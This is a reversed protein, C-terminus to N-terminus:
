ITYTSEIPWTQVNISDCFQDLTNSFEERPIVRAGLSALHESYVQCDILAFDYTKLLDVLHAFCIKSADTRRSFMSEGFFIQGMAIGYLGGVLEGQHWYEVSHAHGSEHLSQYNKIIAQTIWTGPSNLRPEACSKVVESFTQNFTVKYDHKRLSKKLSRSIILEDPFLVCRPDPSWWMIPQTESYWPFIGKRYADLLRNPNLDGGIALLGDPETLALSVDPFEESITNEAVWYLKSKTIM